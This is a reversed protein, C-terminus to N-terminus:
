KKAPGTATKVYNYECSQLLPLISFDTFVLGSINLIYIGEINPLPSIKLILGLHMAHFGPM